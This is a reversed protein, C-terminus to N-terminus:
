AKKEPDGAGSDSGGKTDTEFDDAYDGEFEEEDLQDDEEMPKNRLFYIAVFVLVLLGICILFFTWGYNGLFGGSKEAAEQAEIEGRLKALEEEFARIQFSLNEISRNQNEVANRIQGLQSGLNSNDAKINEIAVKMAATRQSAAEIMKDRNKEIAEQKHSDNCGFFALIAIALVSFFRFQRM